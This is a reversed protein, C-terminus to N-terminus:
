ALRINLVHPSPSSSPVGGEASIEQLASSKKMSQLAGEWAKRNVTKEVVVRLERLHVFANRLTDKCSCILVYRQMRHAGSYQLDPFIQVAKRFVRQLRTLHRGATWIRIVCWKDEAFYKARIGAPDTITCMIMIANSPTISSAHAKSGSSTSTSATTSQPSPVM